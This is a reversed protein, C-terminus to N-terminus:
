PREERGQDIVFVVDCTTGYVRVSPVKDGLQVKKWQAELQDALVRLDRITVGIEIQDKKIIIM